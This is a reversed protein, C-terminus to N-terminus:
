ACQRAQFAGLHRGTAESFKNGVPTCRRPRVHPLDAHRCSVLRHHRQRSTLGRAIPLFPACEPHIRPPLHSADGARSADAGRRDGTACPIIGGNTAAGLTTVTQQVIRKVGTAQDPVAQVVGLGRDVSGAHAPGVRFRSRRRRSARARYQRHWSRAARASEGSAPPRGPQAPRRPTARPVSRPAGGGAGIGGRPEPAPPM